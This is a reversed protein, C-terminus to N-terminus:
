GALDLITNANYSHYVSPWFPFDCLTIWFPYQIFIVLFMSVKSVKLTYPPKEAKIQMIEIYIEKLDIISKKRM